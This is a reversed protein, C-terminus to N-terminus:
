AEDGKKGKFILYLAGIIVVPIGIITCIWFFTSWYERVSPNMITASMTLCSLGVLVLLIAIAWEMWRV